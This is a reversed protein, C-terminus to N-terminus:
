IRIKKGAGGKKREEVKLPSEVAMIKREKGSSVFWQLSGEGGSVTMTATKGSRSMPWGHRGREDRPRGMSEIM